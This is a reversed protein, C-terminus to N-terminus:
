MFLVFLIEKELLMACMAMNKKDWIQATSINYFHMLLLDDHKKPSVSFYILLVIDLYLTIETSAFTSCIGFPSRM